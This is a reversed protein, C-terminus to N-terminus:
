PYKEVPEKKGFTLTVVHCRVEKLLVQIHMFVRGYIGTVTDENLRLKSIKLEAFQIRSTQSFVNLFYSIYLFLYIINILINSIIILFLYIIYFNIM